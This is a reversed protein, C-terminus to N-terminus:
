GDCQAWSCLQVTDNEWWVTLKCFQSSLPYSYSRPGHSRAPWIHGTQCWGWCCSSARLWDSELLNESFRLAFGAKMKRLKLQSCRSGDPLGLEQSFAGKGLSDSHERSIAPLPATIEAKIWEMKLPCAPSELRPRHCCHNLADTHILQIGVQIIPNWPSSFALIWWYTYFM